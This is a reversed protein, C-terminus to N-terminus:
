DVDKSHLKRELTNLIQATQNLNEITRGQQRDLDSLQRYYDEQIQWFHSQAAAMRSMAEFLRATQRTSEDTFAQIAKSNSKILQRLEIFEERSEETLAQIAKANSEILEQLREYTM